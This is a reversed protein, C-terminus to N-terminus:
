PDFVVRFVYLQRRQLANCPRKAFPQMDANSSLLLPIILIDV